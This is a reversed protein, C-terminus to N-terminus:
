SAMCSAPFAPLAHWGIVITRVTWSFKITFSVHLQMNKEFVRLVSGEATFLTPLLKFRPMTDVNVQPGMSNTAVTPATFFTTFCEVLYRSVMDVQFNVWIDSIKSTLITPHCEFEFMWQLFMLKHVFCFKTVCAIKAPLLKLSRIVEDVVSSSVSPLMRVLTVLARPSSRVTTREDVVLLFMCFRNMIDMLLDLMSNESMKTLCLAVDLSDLTLNNILFWLDVKLCDLFQLWYDLTVKARNMLRLFRMNVQLSYLFHLWHDLSTGAGHCAKM